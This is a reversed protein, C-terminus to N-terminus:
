HNNAEAELATALVGEIVDFAVGACQLALAISEAADRFGNRYNIVEDADFGDQGDKLEPDLPLGRNLMDTLRTDLSQPGLSGAISPAQQELNNAMFFKGRSQAGALAPQGSASTTAMAAPLIIRSPALFRFPLGTPHRDVQTSTGASGIVLLSAIAFEPDDLSM